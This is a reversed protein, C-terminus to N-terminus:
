AAPEIERPGLGHRDRWRYERMYCNYCLQAKTPLDECVPDGWELAGQRGMQNDRCRPTDTPARMGISTKTLRALLAVAQEIDTITQRIDETQRTFHQLAIAAAETSSSTAGGRGASEGRSGYGDCITRERNLNTLALTVDPALQNLTQAAQLTRHDPRTM